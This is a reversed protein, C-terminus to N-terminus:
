SLKQIKSICKIGLGCEEGFFFFFFVLGCISLEIVGTPYMEHFIPDHEM